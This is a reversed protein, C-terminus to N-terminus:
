EDDTLDGIEVDTADSDENGAERPSRKERNAALRTFPPLAPPIPQQGYSPSRIHVSSSRSSIPSSVTNNNTLSQTRSHSFKISQPSSLSMLSLVADQENTKEDNAQQPGGGFKFGTPQFDDHSHLAVKLPPLQVDSSVTRRHSPTFSPMDESFGGSTSPQRRPHRTTSGISKRRTQRSLAALLARHASLEEDPSPMDVLPPHDNSFRPSQKLPSNVDQGFQAVSKPIPSSQLTQLNLNARQFSSGPSFSNTSQKTPSKSPDFSLETFSIKNSLGANSNNDEKQIKGLASSLKHKLQSSIETLDERKPSADDNDFLKKATGFYQPTKQLKLRRKDENDDSDYGSHRPTKLANAASYPSAVNHYNLKYDPSKLTGSNSRKVSPTFPLHTNHANQEPTRLFNASGMRSSRKEGRGSSSDSGPPSPTSPKFASNRKPSSVPTKPKSASM